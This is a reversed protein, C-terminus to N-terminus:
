RYPRLCLSTIVCVVTVVPLFEHLSASVLCLLRVCVLATAYARACRSWCVGVCGCVCVRVRSRVCVCVCVCVCVGHQMVGCAFVCGDGSGVEWGGVSGLM